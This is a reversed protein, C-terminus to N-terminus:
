LRKKKKVFQKDSINRAFLSLKGTYKTADSKQKESAGSNSRTLLHHEFTDRDRLRKDTLPIFPM